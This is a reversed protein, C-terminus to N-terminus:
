ERYSRAFCGLFPGTRRSRRGSLVAHGVNWKLDDRIDSGRFPADSWGPGDALQFDLQLGDGANRWRRLLETELTCGRTRDRDLGLIFIADCQRSPVQSWVCLQM